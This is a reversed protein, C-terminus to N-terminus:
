SYRESSSGEIHNDPGEVFPLFGPEAKTSPHDNLQRRSRGTALDVVIIANPGTDSSDTIFAVGDAGRRLDFRMDNLYTTPLVVDSPFPISTFLRNTGLDVGILKAGGPVLPGFNIRGTDLIWLRNRPDIVVSQVSIFTESPRSVDLENIGANPFPVAQGRRIEAVTFRVPDSWRPFSVFLRNEQSVTVGTPMPGFFAVVTEFQSVRRERPLLPNAHVAIDAQEETGAERAQASIPQPVTAFCTAAFCLTVLVAHVKRPM